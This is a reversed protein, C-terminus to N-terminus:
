PQGHQAKIPRIPRARRRLILLAPALLLATAPEPIVARWAETTGDTRELYGVMVRGNPTLDTAVLRSVTSWQISFGLSDFYTQISRTGNAQDWISDESIMVSADDSMAIAAIGGPFPLTGTGSTWRFVQPSLNDAECVGVAINGNGSIATIENRTCGALLPVPYSGEGLKWRIAREQGAAVSSKGFAALGDSSIGLARVGVQFPDGGTLMPINFYGGSPVVIASWITHGYQSHVAFHGNDSMQGAISEEFFAGTLSGNEWLFPRDLDLPRSDGVIRSGDWNVGTARSFKGPGQTPAGLGLMQGAKWRFAEHGGNPDVATSTSYGVVTSGDASVATARSMFAGGPLDGLLTFSPTPAGRQNLSLAGPDGARVIATALIVVISYAWTARM